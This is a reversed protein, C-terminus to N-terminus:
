PRRVTVVLPDGCYTFKMVFNISVHAMVPVIQRDVPKADAAAKLTLYGTLQNGTIVTQSAKDDITVGPPLSDGYVSGLHQYVVDLSLNGKFEPAREITVDVRKSEGPKLEVEHTSLRVSRIDHLDGVSVVHTDVAWHYRGGGPMYIEQLPRATATIASFSKWSRAHRGTGTVRIEWAGIKADAAAKLLICGDKGTPLIRGCMATLGPPLGDVALQVEGSFGNHRTARVFIASSTGPALLTKDTDLELTFGPEARAVKLFYVFAPGGREHADRIEIIYKGNAPATWSEIRSDAHVFRDRYDDNEVLRDGKENLIRLVPDMASQHARAIVEFAFQEGAKAEFSYRNADGEAEIRGSIGCPVTVPHTKDTAIVSPVAPLRSVVVPVINSKQGGPLDLVFWQLGDPTNPPVTLTATKDAPLNFGVLELKTAVGPAVRMPHVNTVFPRDSAEICYQWDANGGYRVDRIELYYEGATRVKYHLLPDAFFYNDNVAVVTGSANRLTLIPDAHEQLDHIKDELRQCRVHFTLAQGASAQFKFFDVDEKKEFAGCLTAPLTVPQATKMTDNNAAERIIPDRVVVIQGVTSVGLSGAIRVERPGPLADPSVRFRVKLRDTPGKANPTKPDLKRSDVEGTVGDGTVFVKYAGAMSYRSRVECETTAGAQVAVPAVSMLMPYFTDARGFAAVSLILVLSLRRM